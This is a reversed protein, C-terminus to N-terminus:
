DEAYNNILFAIAEQETDFMTSETCDLYGSASLRALYRNSFTFSEIVGSHMAPSYDELPMCFSEGNKYQLEIVDGHYVEPQMFQGKFAEELEERTYTM